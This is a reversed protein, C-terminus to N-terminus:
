AAAPESAELSGPPLQQQPLEALVHFQIRHATETRRGARGKAGVNLVGTLVRVEPQLDTDRSATVLVDFDVQTLLPAEEAHNKSCTYFGQKKESWNVNQPNIAAGNKAAYEQAATIGDIIEVFVREIFDALRVEKFRRSM